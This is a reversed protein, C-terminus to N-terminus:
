KAAQAMKKIIMLCYGEPATEPIFGEMGAYIEYVEHLRAQLDAIEISKRDAIDQWGKAWAEKEQLEAQLQEERLKHASLMTKQEELLTGRNNYEKILADHLADHMEAVSKYVLELGEAEKLAAQLQDIEEEKETCNLCYVKNMQRINEDKMKSM